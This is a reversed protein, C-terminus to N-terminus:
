KQVPIVKDYINRMRLLLASAHEIQAGLSSIVYGKVRVDKHVSRMVKVLGVLLTHVEELLGLFDGARHRLLLDKEQRVVAPPFYYSRTEGDREPSSPVVAVPQEPTKVKEVTEAKKMVGLPAAANDSNVPQFALLAKAAEQLTLALAALDPPTSNQPNTQSQESETHVNSM